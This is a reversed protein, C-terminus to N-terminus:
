DDSPFGKESLHIYFRLSQDDTILGNAILSSFEKMDLWVLTSIAERADGHQTQGKEGDVKALFLMLDTEDERSIKWLREAVYGTEELLEKCANQDGSLGLEGFGRPTMLVWDREVHRYEKILCVKEKHFPLISSNASGQIRGKKNVFRIYQSKCGSPFIVWDRLVVYWEDEAVVGLDYYSKPTGEQEAILYLCEQAKEIEGRDLIIIISGAQDTNNSFLFPFNDVYYFYRDLREHLEM